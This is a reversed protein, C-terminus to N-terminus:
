RSIEECINVIHQTADIKRLKYAAQAMAVCKKREAYLQKLITALKDATLDSQQILCAAKEKAMFSANATQHDDSAYPFPVLIAGLGATCLESITSAGARCLVIDAWAYAEDMKFIFPKIDASVGAEQYGKITKDFNKEGSQHLVSPREHAALLAIAKPVLENIAAAGLSGGIVLLHLPSESRQFRDDPHPLQMIEVRVPNGTTVVNKRISFTNPFGELKKEAVYALWKNTMGPKANQEHIVLPRRLIWSAIGGPGSVFGGLGLVIDPKLKHIIRGAQIFAITLRWPALLLDKWSKGRLGGISIYHIPFGAEPVVRSELGKTTGLWHVEIKEERLRKAIALGPFVHGGTGGTMILVTRLKGM